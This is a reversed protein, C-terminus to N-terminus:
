RSKQGSSSYVHLSEPPLLTPHTYSLGFCFFSPLQSSIVSNVAVVVLFYEFLFLLFLLVIRSTELRMRLQDIYASCADYSLTSSAFLYEGGEALEQWGQGPHIGPIRGEKQVQVRRLAEALSTARENLAQMLESTELRLVMREKVVREMTEM